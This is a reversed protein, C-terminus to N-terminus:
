RRSWRRASALDVPRSSKRKPAPATMKKVNISKREVRDFDAEFLEQALLTVKKEAGTICYVEQRSRGQETEWARLARIMSAGDMNPKEFDYLVFDYFQDQLCQLREFEVGDTSRYNVELIHGREVGFKCVLMRHLTSLTTTDDVILVTPVAPAVPQPALM